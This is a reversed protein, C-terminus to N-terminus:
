SKGRRWNLDKYSSYEVGAPPTGAEILEKAATKNVAKNLLGWLAHTRIHQLVVSWEDMSIPTLGIGLMPPAAGLITDIVGDMDKVTASDKTVFFAMDGNATKNQQLGHELMFAKVYQECLKLAENLPALEANHRGQIIAIDEVLKFRQAMVAENSLETESM